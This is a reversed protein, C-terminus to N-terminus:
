LGYVYAASYPNRLLPTQATSLRQFPNVGALMLLGLLIVAAYILPLLVPLVAGFSQNLTFLLWGVGIMLSLVGALVLLGLWRTASQARKNDANGAMFAMLGPYVPLICVNTLIAGNGILFAQLLEGM